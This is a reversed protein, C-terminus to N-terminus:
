KRVKKYPLEMTVELGRNFTIPYILLYEIKNDNNFFVKVHWAGDNYRDRDFSPVIGYGNIVDLKGRHTHGFIDFYNESYSFNRKEYYKKLYEVTLAASEVHNNNVKEDRPVGCHHLGIYEGNKSSNSFRLIANEYGLTQIGMSENSLYSIPDIGMSAYDLDHNGGLIYHKIGCTKIDDFLNIPYLKEAAQNLLERKKEINEVTLDRLEKTTDFVDGLNIIHSINNLACYNYIADLRKYTYLNDNDTQLHIDSIFMFDIEEKTNNPVLLVNDTVIEPAQVHYIPEQTIVSSNIINVKKQIRKLSEHVEFINTKIGMTGLKKILSNISYEKAILLNIIRDDFTKAQQEYALQSYIEGSKIDELEVKLKNKSETLEECKSELDSNNSVLNELEKALEKKEKELEKRKTSNTKLDKNLRKIEEDQQEERESPVQIDELKKAQEENVKKLKELEKLLKDRSEKLAETESAMKALLESNDTTKELEKIEPELMETINDLSKVFTENEEIGNKACFEKYIKPFSAVRSVIIDDIAQNEELMKYIIGGTFVCLKDITNLTEKKEGNFIKYLENSLYNVIDSNNYKERGSNAVSMLNVYKLDSYKCNKFFKNINLKTVPRLEKM